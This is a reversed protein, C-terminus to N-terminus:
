LQEWRSIIYILFYNPHVPNKVVNSAKGDFRDSGGFPCFTRLVTGNFLTMTIKASGNFHGSGSRACEITTTAWNASMGYGLLGVSVATVLASSIFFLMKQISPMTATNWFDFRFGQTQKRFSLHNGFGPLVRQDELSQTHSSGEQTSHFTSLQDYFRKIIFTVKPKPSM